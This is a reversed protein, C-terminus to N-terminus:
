PLVEIAPPMYTGDLVEARPRYMRMTLIFRGEGVPLWNAANAPRTRSITIEISGDAGRVLGPTRDGISYRNIENPVFDVKSADYVTLSWFADVPPMKDAPFRIRYSRAGSLLEGSADTFVTPYVSEERQNALLGIHEIYARQLYDFGYVGIASLSPRTWGKERSFRKEVILKRGDAIARELGRRAAPSLRNEDFRV